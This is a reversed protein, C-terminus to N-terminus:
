PKKYTFSAFIQEFGSEVLSRDEDAVHGILFCVRDAIRKRRHIRTHPVTEGMLTISMKETLAEYGDTNSIEGFESASVNGIPTEEKAMQAFSDAFELIGVAEDAPHFHVIFIADGPSEIIIYRISDQQADETIEWNGPYEFEMGGKSYSQPNATDASKEGCGALTLLFLAILLVNLAIKM